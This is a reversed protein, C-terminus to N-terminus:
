RQSWKRLVLMSVFVAACYVLFIISAVALLWKGFNNMLMLTAFSVLTLVAVEILLLVGTSQRPTKHQLRLRENSRQLRRVLYLTWVGYIAIIPAPVFLFGLDHKLPATGIILLLMAIAYVKIQLKLREYDETSAIVYCRGFMGWPLFLKRGDQATKFYGNTLSDLYAM